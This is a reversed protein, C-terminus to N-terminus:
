SISVLSPGGAAAAAASQITTTRRPRGTRPDINGMSGFIRNAQAEQRKKVYQALLEDDWGGHKRQSDTLKSEDDSM